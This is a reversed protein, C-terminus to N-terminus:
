NARRVKAYRFGLPTRYGELRVDDGPALQRWLIRDVDCIEHPRKSFYMESIVYMGRGCGGSRAPDILAVVRAQTSAQPGSTLRAHIDPLGKTVAPTFTMVGLAVFVAPAMMLNIARSGLLWFRTRHLRGFHAAVVGLILCYILFILSSQYAFRSLDLTPVFRAWRDGYLGAAGIIFLPVAIMIHLWSAGGDGGVQPSRTPKRRAHAVPPPVAAGLRAAYRGPFVFLAIYYLTSTTVHLFVFFVLEPQVVPFSILAAVMLGSWIAASIVLKATAFIMRWFYFYRERILWRSPAPALFMFGFVAFLVALPLPWLVLSKAAESGEVFDRFPSLGFIVAVSLANLGTLRAALQGGFETRQSAM